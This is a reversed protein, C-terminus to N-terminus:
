RVRVAKWKWHHNVTNSTSGKMKHKSVFTGKYTAYGDNISMVITDGELKWTDNTKSNDPPHGNKFDGHKQFTVKYNYRGEGKIKYRIMWESDILDNNTVPNNSKHLLSCSGAMLGAVIFLFLQYHKM